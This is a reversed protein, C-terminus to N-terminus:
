REPREAEQWPHAAPIGEQIALLHPMPTISEPQVNSDRGFRDLTPLEVGTSRLERAGCYAAEETPFRRGDFMERMDTGRAAYGDASTHVVYRYVLLWCGRADCDQECATKAPAVALVAALMLPLM